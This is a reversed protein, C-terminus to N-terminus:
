HIKFAMCIQQIFSPFLLHDYNTARFFSYLQNKFDIIQRHSYTFYIAISHMRKQCVYTNPIKPSLIKEGHILLM